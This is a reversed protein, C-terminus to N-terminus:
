PWGTRRRPNWLTYEPDSLREKVAQDGRPHHIEVLFDMALSNVEPDPIALANILYDLGREDGLQALAKAAQLCQVADTEQGLLALLGDTDGEQALKRIQQEADSGDEDGAPEVPRAGPPNQEPLEGLRRWLIERIIEFATDTWEERSHNQWIEILEDTEKLDLANFVQKRYDEDM